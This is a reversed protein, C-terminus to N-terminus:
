DIIYRKMAYIKLFETSLLEKQSFNAVVVFAFKSQISDLWYTLQNMDNIVIFKSPIKVIVNICPEVQMYQILIGKLTLSLTFAIKSPHVSYRKM